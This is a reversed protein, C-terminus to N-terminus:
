NISKISQSNIAGQRLIELKNEHIKIVTSAMKEECIGGDILLFDQDNKSFNKEIELASIAVKDGSINASTVALIGDFKLLLKEVFDSKVIRFGLFDDNQNLNKALHKESRKKLVMTLAGPLFKDAIKQALEDFVLIEKAVELNPMFVAIPKSKDRKKFKYLAAVADENKADVCFGYVTDTAFSIIKGKKLFDVALDVAKIDNELIKQM